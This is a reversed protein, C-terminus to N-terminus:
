ERTRRPVVQNDLGLCGDAHPDAGTKYLPHWYKSRLIMEQTNDTPTPQPRNTWRNVHLVKAISQIDELKWYNGQTNNHVLM